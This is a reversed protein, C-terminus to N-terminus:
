ARAEFHQVPGCPPMHRTVADVPAEYGCLLTMASERAAQENFNAGTLKREVEVAEDIKARDAASLEAYSRPKAGEGNSKSEPMIKELNKQTPPLPPAERPADSPTMGEVASLYTAIAPLGQSRLSERRSAPVNSLLLGSVKEADADSLLVGKIEPAPAPAKADVAALIKAHLKDPDSEKFEDSLASMAKHEGEMKKAALMAGDLMGSSQMHASMKDLSAALSGTMLNGLDKETGDTDALAQCRKLATQVAAYADMLVRNKDAMHTGKSVAGAGPDSGSLITPQAKITGPDTVLGANRFAVIVGDKDHLVAPSIFPWKGDRIEQEVPPVWQIETFWIGDDRLELKFHGTAAKDQPRANPDYTAHFYDFCLAVGRMRFVAMAKAAGEPTLKLTGKTTPNDGWTFARFERPPDAGIRPMPIVSLASGSANLLTLAADDLQRHRLGQEAEQPEAAPERGSTEHM